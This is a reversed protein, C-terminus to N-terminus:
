GNQQECSNCDARAGAIIRDQLFDSCMVYIKHRLGDHHTVYNNHKLQIIKSSGCFELGNNQDTGKSIM